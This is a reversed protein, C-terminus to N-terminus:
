SPSPHSSPFSIPISHTTLAMWQNPTLEDSQLYDDCKPKQFSRCAANMPMEIEQICVPAHLEVTCMRNHLEIMWLWILNFSRHICLFVTHNHAWQCFVSAANPLKLNFQDLLKGTSSLTVIVFVFLTFRTYLDLNNKFNNVKLWLWM